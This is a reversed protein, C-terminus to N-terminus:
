RIITISGNFTIDKAKGKYHFSYYYV